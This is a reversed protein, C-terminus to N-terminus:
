SESGALLKHLWVENKIYGRTAGGTGTEWEGCSCEADYGWQGRMTAQHRIKKGDVYVYWRIRHETSM